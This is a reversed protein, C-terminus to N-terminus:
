NVDAHHVPHGYEKLQHVWSVYSLVRVPALRRSPTYIAAGANSPNSHTSEGGMAQKADVQPTLGNLRFEFLLTTL